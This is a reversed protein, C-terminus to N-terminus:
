RSRKPVTITVRTGIAYGNQDYLDKIVLFRVDEENPFMLHLRQETTKLGMSRGENTKTKNIESSMSRGIGNDEVVCYLLKDKEYFNIKIHCDKMKPLLGHKISNEAIPQIVLPPISTLELNIDPAVEISYSFENNFRLTELDLYLKLVTVEHILPVHNFKSNELSYRILKSFKNLYELAEKDNKIIILYEIASLCNFVFHPNMQSRLATIELKELKEKFEDKMRLERTTRNIIFRYLLLIFGLIALAVASKFFWTEYWKSQIILHVKESESWTFGDTSTAYYFEYTGAELNNFSIIDNSHTYVWGDNVNELRYRFLSSSLNDLNLSALQFTVNIQDPALKLVNIRESVTDSLFFSENVFIDKIYPKGPATEPKYQEPYFWNFGNVGGFFMVGAENKFWAGTNFEMSQLGNDMGFMAVNPVGFRQPVKFTLYNIGQNTSIWLNNRADALIGYVTNNPLGSNEDLVISKATKTSIGMLGADAFGIWMANRLSDFTLCKVFNSPLKDLESFIIFKENEIDFVSVGKNEYGIWIFGHQDMNICRITNSRLKSNGIHWSKLIRGQNNIKLLGNNGTALWIEGKKDCVIDNIVLDKLILGNDESVAIPECFKAGNKLIFLGKDSTGILLDRSADMYLAVVNDFRDTPHRAIIHHWVIQGNKWEISFLGNQWTGVYLINDTQVLSRVQSFSFDEKVNSSTVKNFHFRDSLIYAGAGDSGFIIDGGKIKVSSLFYNYDIRVLSKLRPHRYNVLKNSAVDFEFIGNGFTAVYIIGDDSEIISCGYMDIPIKESGWQELRTFKDTNHAKFFLGAGLTTLWVGSPAVYLQNFLVDEGAEIFLKKMPKRFDNPRCQFIGNETVIWVMGSAEQTISHVYNKMKGPVLPPVKYTIKNNTDMIFISGDQRGIWKFKNSAEYIASVSDINPFKKFLGTQAERKELIRSKPVLWLNGLHCVMLLGLKLEGPQTIDDFYKNYKIFTQGDYKNLGDQTAMWVFGASDVAMATVSNQSLGKSSNVNYFSVGQSIVRSTLFLFIGFAVAAIRYSKNTGFYCLYDM